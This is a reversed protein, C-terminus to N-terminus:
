HTSYDQRLLLFRSIRSYNKFAQLKSLYLSFYPNLIGLLTLIFYEFFDLEVVAVGSRKSIQANKPMKFLPLFRLPTVAM